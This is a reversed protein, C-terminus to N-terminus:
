YKIGLLQKQWVRCAFVEKCYTAEEHMPIRSLIRVGKGWNASTPQAFEGLGLAFKLRLQRIIERASKTVIGAPLAFIMSPTIGHDVIMKYSTMVELSVDKDSLDTFVASTHGASGIRFLPSQSLEAVEEWNMFERKSPYSGLSTCHDGIHILVETREAVPIRKMRNIMVGIKAIAVVKDEAVDSVLDPFYKRFYPLASPPYGADYITLMAAMVKEPWFLNETGIFATPLHFTAPLSYRKLLPAANTFGDIWGNDITIVVTRKPISTEDVLAEVLTQLSIVNCNRSLYRLHTEFTRPRVYHNLSVPYPQTEPNLIRQYRIIRWTLEGSNETSARLQPEALGSYYLLSAVARVAVRRQLQQLYLEEDVISDKGQAM